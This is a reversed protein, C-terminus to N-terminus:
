DSLRQSGFRQSEMGESRMMAQERVRSASREAGRASKRARAAQPPDSEEVLEVPEAEDDVDDALQEAV